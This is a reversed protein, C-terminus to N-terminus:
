DDELFGRLVTTRVLKNEDEPFGFATLIDELGWLELWELPKEPSAPNRRDLARRGWLLFENRKDAEKESAELTADFQRWDPFDEDFSEHFRVPQWRAAAAGQIDTDLSNGVHFYHRCEDESNPLQLEALVADFIERQPKESKCDYSTVVFDLYRDLGLSKLIVPLRDDFNSAVGIKPGGGQDRWQVLKELTYEVGEKVVWGEESGFIEEYLFPFVKPVIEQEMEQPNVDSIDRTNLYTALM